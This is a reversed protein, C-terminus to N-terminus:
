RDSRGAMREHRPTKKEGERPLMCIAEGEGTYEPVFFSLQKECGEPLEIEPHILM